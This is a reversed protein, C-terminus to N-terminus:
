PTPVLGCQKTRAPGSSRCSTTRRSSGSRRRLCVAARDVDLRRFRGGCGAGVVGGEQQVRGMHASLTRRREVFVRCPASAEHPSKRSGSRRDRGLRRHSRGFVARDGAKWGSQLEVADRNRGDEVAADGSRRNESEVGPRGRRGHLQVRGSRRVRRVPFDPSIKMGKLKVPKGTRKGTAVDWEVIQGTGADRGVLRDEDASWQFQDLAPASLEEIRTGGSTSPEWDKSDAFGTGETSSSQWGADTTVVLPDGEEFTIVAVGIVYASKESNRAVIFLDLGDELAPGLLGTHYTTQYVTGAGVMIGNVSLEFSNDVMFFLDARAPKRGAPIPITKRFYRPDRPPESPDSALWIKRAGAFKDKIGALIAAPAPGAARSRLEEVSAGELPNRRRGTEMEWLHVERGEESSTLLLDHKKNFLYHSIPKAHEIPAFRQVPLRGSTLTSIARMGAPAYAPNTRM